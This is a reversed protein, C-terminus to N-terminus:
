QQKSRINFVNGFFNFIEDELSSIQKETAEKYKEMIETDIYITNEAYYKIWSNVLANDLKLIYDCEKSLIPYLVNFIGYTNSSDSCAYYFADSPEVLAFNRNKKHSKEVTDKFKPANRGLFHLSAAKLGLGYM